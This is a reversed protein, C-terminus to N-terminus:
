AGTQTDTDVLAATAQELELVDPEVGATIDEGGDLGFSHAPSWHVVVDDGARVRDGVALNQEFVMLEQGWAAEVLYQTSVGTFSADTVRGTVRNHGTPVEDARAAPLVGLKEPRVGVIVSSGPANNRAAAVGFSLGFAEVVITDGDTGTARGPILNSQGLFNAVFATRPLEYIDTPSGMQEIRGVNMVAVTDAMTM